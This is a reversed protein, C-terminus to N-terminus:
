ESLVYDNIFDNKKINKFLRKALYYCKRTHLTIHPHFFRLARAWAHGTWSATFLLTSITYGIVFFVRM